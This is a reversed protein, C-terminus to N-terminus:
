VSLYCFSIVYFLSFVGLDGGSALQLSKSSFGESASFYLVSRSSGCLQIYFSSYLLNKLIGLSVFLFEHIFLNGEGVLKFFTEAMIVKELKSIVRIVHDMLLKFSISLM